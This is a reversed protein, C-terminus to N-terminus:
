YKFALGFNFGVDASNDYNILNETMGIEIITHKSAHIRFGVSIEYSYKNYDFAELSGTTAIFNVTFSVDTLMRWDCGLSMSFQYPELTHGFVETDGIRAATVMSTFFFDGVNYFGTVDIGVGFQHHKFWDTTIISPTQLRFGMSLGPNDLLRYRIFGTVDNMMIDPQYEVDEIIFNNRGYKRRTTNSFGFADHFGEIFSDMTGGSVTTFPVSLGVSLRDTIGYHLRYDIRLLEGDLVLQDNVVNFANTWTASQKFVFEDANLHTPLPTTFEYSSLQFITYGRTELPGRSSLDEQAHAFTALLLFSLAAILNRM